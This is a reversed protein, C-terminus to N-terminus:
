TNFTSPPSFMLGLKLFKRSMKIDNKECLVRFTQILLEDILALQPRREIVADTDMENFIKEGRQMQKKPVIELGEGKAATEKRGHTELLGIVM